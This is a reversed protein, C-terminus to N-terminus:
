RSFIVPFLIMMDVAVVVDDDVAVVVVVVIVLVLGSDGGGGGGDGGGGGGGGSSVVVVVFPFVTWVFAVAVDDVANGKSNKGYGSDDECLIESGRTGHGVRSVGGRGSIWGVDTAFQYKEGLESHALIVLFVSQLVPGSARESASSM